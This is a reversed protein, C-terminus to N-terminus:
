VLSKWIAGHHRASAEWTLERARALGAKALRTREEGDTAAAVIADAMADVDLPDVELAAAGTCPLPSAVVPTGASMAEVAPLGFGELLPVYVLCRAQAYLAALAPDSVRGFLVAGEVPVVDAGWGRPGVLVLPWPEPLRARARTYADLLRGVNKRPELTGVTLLFEGRVGARSLEERARDHDPPPLHDCGHEVMEVRKAGEAEILRVTDNSATLIVDASRVARRFASEHWQRGRTPFADPLQRWALDHVFVTLPADRVPPAALSVAHVIDYGRPAPMLGRDWARTLAPGPLAVSRVPHGYRELPDPGRPARSALLTVDPTDDRLAALGQLLGRAYTGIGGPVARRLQEVVLLADM